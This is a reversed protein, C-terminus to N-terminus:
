GLPKCCKGGVPEIKLKSAESQAYNWANDLSDFHTWWNNEHNVEHPKQGYFCTSKHLIVRKAPKNVRVWYSIDM